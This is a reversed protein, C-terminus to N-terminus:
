RVSSIKWKSGCTPSPTTSPKPPTAFLKRQSFCHRSRRGFSTIASDISARREEQGRIAAREEEARRQETVDEHTSVWGGGPLPENKALVIRGDSAKVYHEQSKGLAMAELIKKVYSDVDGAFLGTEKRYEILLKLTCSPKVVDPSLKHMELYRKNLLIIRGHADFMNLGQSMNNLATSLRRNQQLLRRYSICV